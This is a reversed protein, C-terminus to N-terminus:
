IGMDELIKKTTVDWTFKNVVTKNLEQGMKKTLEKDKVLKELSKELAKQSEVVIGNKGNLFYKTGGNPTAIVACKMLGAELICTPLGEPYHSPHVFINAKAYIKILQDFNNRGLFKINDATYTTKLYSLFNGDGAIQLELDKYKKSLKNFAIILDEIGKEKLIRGAYLIVTKDKSKTIKINKDFRNISNYWVGNSNIKFHKQWNCADESVGYYKDVYKKLHSTLAHEYKEGFYDLVKNSVSLHNSGHEILYVPIGRKKGYKAGLLSTLHFRTNVIIRDIEYKDLEAMVDKFKKNRKILPYRKHFLKHIPVRLNLIGDINEKTEFNDYNSSVIIVRYGLNKMERSLNDVYREIGGLHPLAYGSFIVVTKM